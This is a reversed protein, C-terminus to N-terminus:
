GLCKGQSAPKDAPQHRIWARKELSARWGQSPPPNPTGPLHLPSLEPSLTQLGPILDRNQQKSHSRPYSVGDRQVPKWMFLAPPFRVCFSM